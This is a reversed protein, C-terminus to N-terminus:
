SKLNAKFVRLIMGPHFLTTPPDMLNTVRQFAINLDKDESTAQILRTLYPNSLRMTLTRKGEV